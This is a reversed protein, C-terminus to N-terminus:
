VERMQEKPKHGNGNKPHIPSGDGVYWSKVRSVHSRWNGRGWGKADQALYKDKAYWEVVGAMHCASVFQAETPVGQYGREASEGQLVSPSASPSPFANGSADDANGHTVDANRLAKNESKGRYKQVRSKTKERRQEESAIKHYYDYNIIFWGWDRAADLKIIRRGEACPNRSEPDPAELQSIAHNVIEQPVNTRRSIASHTMDVVGNVDALALLDMFVHRVTHDEAISSDFIQAFVKAFM